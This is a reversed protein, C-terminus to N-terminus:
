EEEKDKTITLNEVEVYRELDKIVKGGTPKAKHGEIQPQEIRRRRTVAEALRRYPWVKKVTRACLATGMRM